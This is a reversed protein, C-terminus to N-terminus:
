QKTGIIRYTASSTNSGGAYTKVTFEFGGGTIEIEQSDKNNSTPQWCHAENVGLSSCSTTLVPSTVFWNGYEGDDTEFTFVYKDTNTGIVQFHDRDNAIFVGSGQKALQSQGAFTKRNTDLDLTFGNSSSSNNELEAVPASNTNPTVKLTYPAGKYVDAAEGWPRVDSVVFCYRSSEPLYFKSGDKVAGKALPYGSDGISPYVTVMWNRGEEPSNFEMTAGYTGSAGDVKFWDVDDVSLLSGHMASGYELNDVTGLENNPESEAPGPSASNNADVTFTYEVDFYGPNVPSSFDFGTGMLVIYYTGAEPLYVNFPAGVFVPNTNPTSPRVYLQTLIIGTSDQLQVMMRRDSSVSGFTSSLHATVTRASDVEIRFYDSLGRAEIVGGIASGLVLDNATEINDNSETEMPYPQTYLATVTMSENMITTCPDTSPCTSSTEGDIKWGSFTAGGNVDQYLTVPTNMPYTHQCTGGAANCFIYGDDSYVQGQGSVMVNLTPPINLRFTAEVTASQNMTITCPETGSCQTGTWGYFYSDPSATATLTVFTEYSFSETCDTGCNIGTPSSTVTGSGSGIKEVTLDRPSIITLTYPTGNYSISDSSTVVYYYTTGVNMSIEYYVGDKVTYSDVLTSNDTEYISIKWDGDVNLYSDGSFVLTAPKDSNNEISYWDEDTQEMLNGHMKTEFNLPTAVDFSNNVELEAPDPNLGDNSHLTLEYEPLTNDFNLNTDSTIVFYYVGPEPLTINFFESASLVVENLKNRTNMADGQWLQLRWYKGSLADPVNFDVTVTKPTGLSIKFWDEDSLANIYNTLPTDLDANFATTASIEKNVGLEMTIVCTPNDSCDESTEKWRIFSEPLANLTVVAGPNYWEKCDIGCDINFDDSQIVGDGEKIVSLSVGNITFLAEVLIQEDMTVTCSDTGTCHDVSWGLFSSGFSPSAFLTVETGFQFKENCDLGCYIGSINSSTVTGSGNSNVTLEQDKLFTATIATANDLTIQCPNTGNCVSGSWGVFSSDDDATATVTVITGSPYSTSCNEGCNIGSIDSIVIGGGSGEKTISLNKNEKFVARVSIDNNMTVVCTGTGTCNGSWGEFTANNDAPATLTIITGKPYAASCSGGCEIGPIDSHISGPGSTNVSLIQDKEFRASVLNAKNMTVTCSGTGECFGFWGFFTSGIKAQANLTIVAGQPFPLICNDSCTIGESENIVSGNGSGSTVIYLSRNDNKVFLANVTVMDEISLTCTNTDSCDGGSWGLFNSGDDPQAYLTVVTGFPYTNQCYEGCNIGAIDSFVLGEGQKIISIGPQENALLLLYVSQLDLTSAKSFTCFLFFINLTLLFNKM